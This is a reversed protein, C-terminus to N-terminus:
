VAAARRSSTRAEGLRRVEHSLVDAVQDIVTRVDRGEARTAVARRGIFLVAQAEYREGGPRRVVLRLRARERAAGLLREIRGRKAAWYERVQERVLPALESTSTTAQM